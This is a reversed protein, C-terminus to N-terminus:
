DKKDQYLVWMLRYSLCMQTLEKLAQNEEVTLPHSEKNIEQHIYTSDTTLSKNYSSKFYVFVTGQEVLSMTSSYDFIHAYKQILKAYNSNGHITVHLGYGIRHIYTSDM